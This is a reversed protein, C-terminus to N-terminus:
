NEIREVEAMGLVSGDEVEIQLSENSQDWSVASILQRNVLSVASTQGDKDVLFEVRYQAAPIEEGEADLGDWSLEQRGARLQGFKESSVLEDTKADYVNFVGSDADTLLQGVSELPQGPQRTVLTSVREIRKGILSSGLLFKDSKTDAAMDEVSARVGTMAELSSFQALQSVFAENDMPDLPNQNKLQTTFLTLFATRDLDDEKALLKAQQEEYQSKTLINSPLATVTDISM